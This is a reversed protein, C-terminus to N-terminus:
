ESVQLVIMVSCLSFYKPFLKSQLRGFTQRPLNKFMTLGAIFTTYFVTGFWAGFSLMHITASATSSLKGVVTSSSGALGLAALIAASRVLPNNHLRPKTWLEAPQDGAATAFLPSTSAPEPLDGGLLRPLNQKSLIDRQQTKLGKQSQFGDASAFAYTIAIASIFRM